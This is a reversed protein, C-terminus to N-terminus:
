LEATKFLMNPDDKNYICKNLPLEIIDAIIKCSHKNWVYEFMDRAEAFETVPM